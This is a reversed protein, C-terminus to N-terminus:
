RTPAALALNVGSRSDFIQVQDPDIQLRLTEGVRVPNDQALDVTLAVAGSRCYVRHSRQLPLPEIWEVEVVAQPWDPHAESAPHVAAPRVRLVLGEGPMARVAVGPSVPLSFAPCAFHGEMFAGDIFQSGAEAVFAAVRLNAPWALLNRFSDIQWVHGAEMFAVRDALAAAEAQDHTVYLTTV